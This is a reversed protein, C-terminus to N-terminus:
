KVRLSQICEEALVIPWSPNSFFAPNEVQYRKHRAVFEANLPSGVVGLEPHYKVALQKAEETAKSTRLPPPSAKSIPPAPPSPPAITKPEPAPTSTEPKSKLADKFFAAVVVLGVVLLPLGTGLVLRGIKREMGSRTLPVGTMRSIRGKAASIGLARRWSFSFGFKKGM